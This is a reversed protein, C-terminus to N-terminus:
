SQYGETEGVVPGLGESDRWCAEEGGPHQARRKGLEVTKLFEMWKQPILYEISSRWIVIELRPTRLKKGSIEKQM